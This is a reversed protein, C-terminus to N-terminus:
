VVQGVMQVMKFAAPTAFVYDDSTRNVLGANILPRVVAEPDSTELERGMDQLSWIPPHREPDTLLYVAEREMVDFDRLENPNEDPM